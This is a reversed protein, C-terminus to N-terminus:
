RARVQSQWADLEIRCDEASLDLEHLFQGLPVSAEFSFYTDDCRFAFGIRNAATRTVNFQGTEPHDLMTRKQTEM